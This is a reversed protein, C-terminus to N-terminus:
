SRVRQRVRRRARGQTERTLVCEPELDCQPERRCLRLESLWHCNLYPRRLSIRLQDAGRHHQREWRRGWLRGVGPAVLVGRWAGVPGSAMSRWTGHPAADKGLSYGGSAVCAEVSDAHRVCAPLAPSYAASAGLPDISGHHSSFEVRTCTSRRMTRLTRMCRLAGVRFRLVAGARLGEDMGFPFLAEM